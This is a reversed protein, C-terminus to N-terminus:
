HSPAVKHNTEMGTGQGQGGLGEGMERLVNPVPVHSVKLVASRNSSSCSVQERTANVVLGDYRPCNV